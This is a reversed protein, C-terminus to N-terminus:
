IRRPSRAAAPSTALGNQYTEFEIKNGIYKEEISLLRESIDELEHQKKILLKRNEKVQVSYKSETAIEIAKVMRDTLSMYHFTEELQQHAKPVSLNLHKSHKCKYYYYYNGWRNRSPAGTVPQSCHCRLVGRLPMEDSVSIGPRPKANLKQQVENWMVPDIIAEHIAPFLGGPHERWQKVYQQGSYVPNSLIRQVMSNNSQKLGMKKAEKGILYAPVNKLYASYIYRIIHAKEEDIRLRSNENRGEKIYGFPAHGGIYRGEKVKAAYIGGNIDSERKINEANAMLFELGMMFFSNSDTCDYVIGRSASVIKVGYTIQIKKALTIADGSERSFRSLEAVVLYDIANKNKRIFQMLKQVDPRDFNKASYGEDVYTDTISVDNYKMWQGTVIDQREISNASQKDNSYRLYRAGKKM